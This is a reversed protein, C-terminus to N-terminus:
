IREERVISQEAGPKIRSVAVVIGFVLWFYPLGFTDTSFGEVVLALLSLKGFMGVLRYIVPQTDKELGFAAKAVVYLWLLFCIFGIVGTESLLRVWLNKANPIFSGTTIVEAIEPLRYGYNPLVYQFFYGAGGFGVGLLPHLLYVQYAAMWFVVREAIGLQSAWGLFGFNKFREIDFLKANRPDIKTLIFGLGIALVTLLVFLGFWILLRRWWPHTVGPKNTRDIVRNGLRFLMVALLLLGSIWGIRSFSLFLLLVSTILLIVELSFRRFLRIKVHSFGHYSAALFLPIFLINLQHALWSPEFALGYVRRIFIKGSSSLLSQFVHLPYEFDKILWTIAQLLCFLLIVGFALYIFHITKRLDRESKILYIPALFFAVGTFLTLFGELANRFIATERFSPIDRFYGVATSITGIVFFLALPTVEVPIRKTKLITPLILTFALIVLPILSLPAVSNGGFVRLIPPFSTIPLAVLLLWWLTSNIRELLSKQM